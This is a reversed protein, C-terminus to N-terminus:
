NDAQAKAATAADIAKANVSNLAQIKEYGATFGALSVTLTVTQDRALLPVIRLTGKNGRKFAAVADPTFGVRAVCNRATCYEFPYKRGQGGDVSLTVQETLLTELPTSITAGAAAQGGAPLDVLEITAVPNNAEDRLVQHLACPDAAQDEFVLGTRICRIEWDGSVEKIYPVGLGENPDDPTGMNLDLDNATDTVTAEAPAQDTTTDQALVPTALLVSALALTTLRTPFDFTM